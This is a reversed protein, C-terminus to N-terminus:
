ANYVVEEEHVNLIRDICNTEAYVTEIGTCYKSFKQKKLGYEQLLWKLWYPREGLTKTEMIIKDDAFQRDNDAISNISQRLKFSLSDDFTIRVNRESNEFARRHYEVQLVPHLDNLRLKEQFEQYMSTIEEIEMNNYRLLKDYNLKDEMFKETWKNKIKFRRKYNMGNIKEKLEVFSKNYFEMGNGYQRIRIKFRSKEKNKHDIYCKFDDSDLYLSRIFTDDADKKFTKRNLMEDLKEIVEHAVDKELLYKREKRKFTNITEM